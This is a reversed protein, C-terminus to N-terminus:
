ICGVAEGQISGSNHSTLCGRGLSTQTSPSTLKSTAVRIKPSAPRVNLEESQTTQFAANSRLQFARLGVLVGDEYM